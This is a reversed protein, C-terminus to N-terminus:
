QLTVWIFSHNELHYLGCILLFFNHCGVRLPVDVYPWPSETVFIPHYRIIGWYKEGISHSFMFLFLPEGTSKPPYPFILDQFSTVLPFGPPLTQLLNSWISRSTLQYKMSIQSDISIRFFFWPSKSRRETDKPWPIPFFQWLFNNKWCSTSPWPIVSRNALTTKGKQRGRFIWVSVMHDM